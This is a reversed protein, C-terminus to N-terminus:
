TLAELFSHCFHCQNPLFVLYKLFTLSSNSLHVLVTVLGRFTKHLPIRLLSQLLCQSKLCPSIATKFYSVFCTAWPYWFNSYCFCCLPWSCIRNRQTVRQTIICISKHYQLHHLFIVAGQALFKIHSLSMIFIFSCFIFTCYFLFLPLPFELFLSIWNLQFSNM